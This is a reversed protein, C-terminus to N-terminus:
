KQYSLYWFISEAEQVKLNIQHMKWQKESRSLYGNKLPSLFIQYGMLQYQRPEQM